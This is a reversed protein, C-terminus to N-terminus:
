ALLTANARSKYGDLGVGDFVPDALENWLSVSLTIFDQPGALDLLSSASLYVRAVLAGSTVRELVYPRSIAGYRSLLPAGPKM